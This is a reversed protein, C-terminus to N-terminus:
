QFRRYKIIYYPMLFFAICFGTTVALSIWPFPTGLSLARIMGVTHTLPMVDTVLKAVAPLSDLSFITGCLFTMPTIILASFLSIDAHSKMVMGAAVGLFAFTFCCFLTCLILWVSLHFDKSMFSAMAMLILCSIMGRVVGMMSKGIVVSSVPIPCLLMEDISRYFTKQVFIKSSTFSFCASLTTMSIIGPILFAMYDFEGVKLGHGLGYGFGVLYLIPGVLCTVLM